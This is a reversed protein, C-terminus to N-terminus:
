LAPPTGHRIVSDRRATDCDHDTSSALETKGRGDLKGVAAHGHHGDVPALGAQLPKGIADGALHDIGGIWLRGSRHDFPDGVVNSVTNSKRIHWLQGIAFAKFEEDVISWDLEGNPGEYFGDLNTIIFSALTRM